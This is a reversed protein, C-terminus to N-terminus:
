FKEYELWDEDTEKSIAEIFEDSDTDDFQTSNERDPRKLNAQCGVSANAALTQTEQDKTIL